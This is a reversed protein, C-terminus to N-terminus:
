NRPSIEALAAVMFQLVFKKESLLGYLLQIGKTLDDGLKHFDKGGEMFSSAAKTGLSGVRTAIIRSIIKCVEHMSEQSDQSLQDESRRVADVFLAQVSDVTLTSRRRNETPPAMALSCCNLATGLLQECIIGGLMSGLQTAMESGIENQVKKKGIMLAMKKLPKAKMRELTEPMLMDTSHIVLQRCLRRDLSGGALRSTSTQSPLLENLIEQPSMGQCSMLASQLAVSLLVKQMYPDASIKLVTNIVKSINERCLNYVFIQFAKGISEPTSDLALFDMVADIAVRLDLQTQWQPPLEEVKFWSAIANNIIFSMEKEIDQRVKERMSHFQADLSPIFKKGLLVGLKALKGGWQEVDPKPVSSVGEPFLINLIQDTIFKISQNEDIKPGDSGQIRNVLLPLLKEQTLNFLASNGNQDRDDLRKFANQSHELLIDVCTAAYNGIGEIATESNLLFHAAHKTTNQLNIVVPPPLGLMNNLGSQLWALENNTEIDRLEPHQLLIEDFCLLAINKREWEPINKLAISANYHPLFVTEGFHKRRLVELLQLIYMDANIRENPPLKDLIFNLYKNDLSNKIKDTYRAENWPDIGLLQNVGFQICTNIHHSSAPSLGIKIGQSTLTKLLQQSLLNKADASKFKRLNVSNLASTLYSKPLMNEPLPPGLYMPLPCTIDNVLHSAITFSLDKIYNEVWHHEIDNLNKIYPTLENLMSRKLFRMCHDIQVEPPIGYMQFVAKLVFQEAESSRSGKSLSAVLERSLNLIQSYSPNLSPKSEYYSFSPPLGLSHAPTTEITQIITLLYKKRADNYQETLMPSNESHHENLKHLFKDIQEHNANPNAAQSLAKALAKQILKYEIMKKDLAFVTPQQLLADTLKVSLSLIAKENLGELRSPYVLNSLVNAKSIESIKGEQLLRHLLCLNWIAKGLFPTLSEIQQANLGEKALLTQWRSNLEKILDDQGLQRFQELVTTERNTFPTIPLAPQPSPSIRQPDIPQTGLFEATAQMILVGVKKALDRRSLETSISTESRQRQFEPRLPSPGEAPSAPFSM